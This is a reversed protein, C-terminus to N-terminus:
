RVTSRLCGRSQFQFHGLGREDGGVPHDSSGKRLADILLRSTDSHTKATDLRESTRFTTTQARGMINMVRTLNYALVHLAMETAVKPLTKM